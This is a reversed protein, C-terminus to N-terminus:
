WANHKTGQVFHITSEQITKCDYFKCANNEIIFDGHLNIGYIAAKSISYMCIM